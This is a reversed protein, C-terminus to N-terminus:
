EDEGFLNHGCLKCKDKIEKFTVKFLYDRGNIIFVREFKNTGVRILQNAFEESATKIKDEM